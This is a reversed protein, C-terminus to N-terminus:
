EGKFTCPWYDKWELIWDQNDPNDMFEDREKPTDFELCSSENSDCPIYKIAYIIM